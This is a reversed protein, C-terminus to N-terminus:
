QFVTRIGHNSFHNITKAVTVKQSNISQPSNNMDHLIRHAATDTNWAHGQWQRMEFPTQGLSVSPQQSYHICASRKFTCSVPDRISLKLKFVINSGATSITCCLTQVCMLCNTVDVPIVNIAHNWIHDFCEYITLLPSIECDCFALLCTISRKMNCYLSWIM